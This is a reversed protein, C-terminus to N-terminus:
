CCSLVSGWTKTWLFLEAATSQNPSLLCKLFLLFNNEQFLFIRFRSSRSQGSSYHGDGGWGTVFRKKKKKRPSSISGPPVAEGPRWEELAEQPNFQQSNKARLKTAWHFRLCTPYRLCSIAALPSRRSINMTMLCSSPRLQAGDQM